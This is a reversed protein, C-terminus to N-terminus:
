IIYPRLNLINVRKQNNLEENVRRTHALTSVFRQEKLTLCFVCIQAHANFIAVRMRVKDMDRM